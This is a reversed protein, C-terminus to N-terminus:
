ISSPLVKKIFVVSLHKSFRLYHRIFKIKYKLNNFFGPISYQLNCYVLYRFSNSLNNNKLYLKLIPFNKNFSNKFYVENENNISRDNNIKKVKTEQFINLRTLNNKKAVAALFHEFIGWDSFFYNKIDNRFDNTLSNGSFGIFDIGDPPGDIEFLNNNLEKVNSFVLHPHSIISLPCDYKVFYKEITDFFNEDFIVDCTTWIYFNDCNIDCKEIVNLFVNTLSFRYDKKEEEFVEFEINYENLVNKVNKEGFTTVILKIKSRKEKSLRDLFLRQIMDNKSGDFERFTTALIIEM